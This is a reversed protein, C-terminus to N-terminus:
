RFFSHVSFFANLYYVVVLYFSIKIFYKQINSINQIGLNNECFKGFDTKYKSLTKKLHIFPFFNFIFYNM